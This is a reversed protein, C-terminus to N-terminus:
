KILVQVIMILAWCFFLIGDLKALLNLTRNELKETGCLANFNVLSFAVILFSYDSLNNSDGKYLSFAYGIWLPIVAILTFGKLFKMDKRQSIIGRTEGQLEKTSHNEVM